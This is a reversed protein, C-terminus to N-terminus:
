GEMDWCWMQWDTEVNDLTRANLDIGKEAIFADFAEEDNNFMNWIRQEEEEQADIGQVDYIGELYEYISMTKNGKRKETTTGRPVIITYCMQEARDISKNTLFKNPLASTKEEARQTKNKMSMSM